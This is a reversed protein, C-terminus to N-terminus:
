ASQPITDRLESPTLLHEQARVMDWQHLQFAVVSKSHFYEMMRVHSYFLRKKTSIGLIRQIQSGVKQLSVWTSQTGSMEHFKMGHVFGFGFNRPGSTSFSLFRIKRTVSINMLVWIESPKSQNQRLLSFSHIQPTVDIQWVPFVQLRTNGWMSVIMWM